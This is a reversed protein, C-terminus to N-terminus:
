LGVKRVGYEAQSQTYGEYKLQSILGSRSFHQNDLYDQATGAAQENWDIKIHNVAFTADAKSFGEYKLQGILGSKSFHSYELYDEASGIAQEQSKTLSPTSKVV